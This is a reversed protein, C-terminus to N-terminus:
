HKIHNFLSTKFDSNHFEKHDQMLKVFDYINNTKLYYILNKCPEFYNEYKLFELKDNKSYIIITFIQYNMEEYSNVSPGFLQAVKEDGLYIYKHLQYIKYFNQLHHIALTFNNIYLVALYLECIGVHYYDHEACHYAKAQKFQSIALNPYNSLYTQYASDSTPTSFYSGM